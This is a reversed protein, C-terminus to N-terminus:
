RRGREEGRRDRSRRRRGGRERRTGRTRRALVTMERALARVSTLAGERGHLLGGLRVSAGQLPDGRSLPAWSASLRRGLVRHGRPRGQTEGRRTEANSGRQSGRQSGEGVGKDRAPLRVLDRSPASGTPVLTPFSASLRTPRSHLPHPSFSVSSPPLPPLYRSPIIPSSDIRSPLSSLLSFFIRSRITILHVM